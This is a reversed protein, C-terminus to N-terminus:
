FSHKETWNTNCLIDLRFASFWGRDKMERQLALIDERGKEPVLDLNKFYRLLM